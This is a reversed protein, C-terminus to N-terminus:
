CAPGWAGGRAVAVCGAGASAGGARGAAGQWPGCQEPPRAGSGSGGTAGGEGVWSCHAAGSARSLAGSGSPVLGASAGAAPRAM